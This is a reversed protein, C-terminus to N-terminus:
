SVSPWDVPTDLGSVGRLSPLSEGGLTSAAGRRWLVLAGERPPQEDPAIM